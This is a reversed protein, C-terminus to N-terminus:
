ALGLEQETETLARDLLDVIRDADAKTLILPPAVHLV